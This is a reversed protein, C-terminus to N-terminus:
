KLLAGCRADGDAVDETGALAPYRTRDCGAAFLDRLQQTLQERSAGIPLQAHMSTGPAGNLV